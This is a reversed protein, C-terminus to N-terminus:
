PKRVTHGEVDDEDDPGPHAHGHGTVDEDDPGPHAHGHGEVDEMDTIEEQESM